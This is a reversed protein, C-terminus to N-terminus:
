EDLVSHSICVSYLDGFSVIFMIHYLQLNLLLMTVREVPFLMM